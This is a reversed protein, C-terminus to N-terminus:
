ERTSAVGARELMWFGERIDAVTAGADVRAVVKDKSLDAVDDAAGLSNTAASGESDRLFVVAGRVQGEREFCEKVFAMATDLDIGAAALTLRRDADGPAVAFVFRVAFADALLAVAEPLEADELDLDAVRTAAMAPQVPLAVEVRASMRCLGPMAPEAFWVRVGEFRWTALGTWERLIGLAARVSMESPVVQPARADLVGRASPLVVFPEGELAAVMKIVQGATARAPWVFRAPEEVGALGGTLGLALWGALPLYLM